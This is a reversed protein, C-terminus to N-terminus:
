EVVVLETKAPTGDIVYTVTYLGNALGATEFNAQGNADVSKTAIQKGVMDTLIVTATANNVLKVEATFSGISPNPYVNTSSINAAASTTSTIVSSSGITINKFKVIAKGVGSNAQYNIAFEIKGIKQALAATLFDVGNPDSNPGALKSFTSLLASQDIFLTGTTASLDFSKGYITIDEVGNTFTSFQVKIAAGPANVNMFFKDATFNTATYGFPQKESTASYSGNGFGNVYYGATTGQATIVYPATAATDVTFGNSGPTFIFASGAGVFSTKTTADWIKFNQANAVAVAALMSLSLLVKKM